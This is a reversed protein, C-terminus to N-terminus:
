GVKFAYKEGDDPPFMYSVCTLDSTASLDIGVYCDRGKYDDFSINKSAEVIYHDPIWVTEADCWLNINKTKLLM